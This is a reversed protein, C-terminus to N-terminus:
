VIHFQQEVMLNNLEEIMCEYPIDCNLIKEYSLKAYYPRINENDELCFIEIIEFYEDYFDKTNSHYGYDTILLEELFFELPKKIVPSVLEDSNHNATIDQNTQNLDSNESKFDYKM